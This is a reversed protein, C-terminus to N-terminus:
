FMEWDLLIKEVIISLTYGEKRLYNKVDKIAKEPTISM